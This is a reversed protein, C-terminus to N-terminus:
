TRTDRDELLAEVQAVDSDFEAWFRDLDALHPRAVVDLFPREGGEEGGGPAPRRDVGEGFPDGAEAGGVDAADDATFGWGNRARVM